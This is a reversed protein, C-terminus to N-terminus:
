GLPEPEARNECSLNNCWWKPPGGEDVLETFVVLPEGCAECIPNSTIMREAYDKASGDKTSALWAVERSMAWLASPSWALAGHHNAIRSTRRAAALYTDAHFLDFAHGAPTEHVSPHDLYWPLQIVMSGNIHGVDSMATGTVAKGEAVTWRHAETVCDLWDRRLPCGDAEVLFVARRHLTGARWMTSLHDMAGAALANCGDPHGVGERKSRFALVPFKRRAHNAAAMEAISLEPMDFRRVLALTADARPVPEIDALLRVLRMAEAVDGSYYQVAVVLGSPPLPFAGM